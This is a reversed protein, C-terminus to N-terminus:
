LRRVYFLKDDGAAYFDPLRATLAYACREYFARTKDYSAKGATEIILMRGGKQRADGEAAQLLARGIGQGQSRPDVAIWYLDYAGDSMPNPGYCTYGAVAGGTEAVIFFYGSANGHSLATDVLEVAVAVEGPNFSATARVLAAIPERDASRLPRLTPAARMHRVSVAM